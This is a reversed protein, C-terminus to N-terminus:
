KKTVEPARGGAASEVERDMFRDEFITLVREVADWENRAFDPLRHFADKGPEPTCLV